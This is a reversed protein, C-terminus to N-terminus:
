DSSSCQIWHQTVQAAAAESSGAQLYPHVLGATPVIFIRLRIVQNNLKQSQFLFTFYIYISVYINWVGGGM